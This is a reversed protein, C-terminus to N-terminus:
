CMHLSMTMTWIHLYSVYVLHLLLLQSLPLPLDLLVLPELAELFLRGSIRKRVLPQGLSLPDGKLGQLSMSRMMNTLYNSCSLKLKLMTVLTIMVQKEQMIQLVNFLCRMKGRPDLIFAFSYLLPIDKWYKLYKLKMPYVIPFLDTDKESENMHSIIEIFNHMVLPSTPYYVGSLSVSADYFIELFELM